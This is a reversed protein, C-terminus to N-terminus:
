AAGAERVGLAAGRQPLRQRLGGDGDVHGLGHVHVARRVDEASAGRCSARAPLAGLRQGGAARRPVPAAAQQAHGCASPHEGVPVERGRAAPRDEGRLLEPRRGWRAAPPPGAPESRAGPRPGVTEGLVEEVDQFGPIAVALSEVPRWPRSIGLPGPERLSCGLEGLADLVLESRAVLDEVSGGATSWRAGGAGLPARGPWSAASHKASGTRIGTRIMPWFAASSTHHRPNLAMARSRAGYGVRGSTM